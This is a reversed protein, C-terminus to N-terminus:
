ASDSPGRGSGRGGMLWRARARFAARRVGLIALQLACRATLAVAVGASPLAARNVHARYYRLASLHFIVTTRSKQRLSGGSGGTGQNHKIVLGPEYRVRFGRNWSRRCWDTDEWYLFYRHDLTGIAEIRDWPAIMCAGSVWDVDRADSGALLQRKVFRSEPFMRSLLSTRGFLGTSMTPFRRASQEVHGDGGLIMPGVIGLDSPWSVARLCEFFDEALQADPNLLM